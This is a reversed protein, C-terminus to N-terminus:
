RRGARWMLVVGAAGLVVNQLWAAWSRASATRRAGPGHRHDDSHLLRLHRSHELRIRGFTASRHSQVGLSAALLAFVFSAAPIAFKLHLHLVHERIDDGRADLVAIHDRLERITMEEPSKQAQMVQEPRYGISVPQRGQRFDVTVGPDGGHVHIVGDEM